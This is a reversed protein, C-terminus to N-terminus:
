KYRPAARSHSLNPALALRATDVAEWDEANPLSPITILEHQDLGSLAADVMEEADMVIGEPLNVVPVGARDWFGTSTVGPLVAQVQVGRSGLEQHLAQTLVVVYSKSASYVGNLLEPALAVISSINIIIGNAREVMGKLVALTLCTVAVVNVEIMADMENVDSDLLKATAGFGANNILATISEDSRLRDEVRLVDSKVTLDAVLTEIKPARAGMGAIRAAVDDLRRADRAVLVLDYGRKAFRDAYIAGIGASAGTILATGKSTRSEVKVGIDIQTQSRAVPRAIL